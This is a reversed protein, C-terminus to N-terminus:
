LWAELKRGQIEIEGSDKQGLQQFLLDRKISTYFLAAYDSLFDEEMTTEHVSDVKGNFDYKTERTEFKM